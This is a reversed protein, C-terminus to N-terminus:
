LPYAQRDQLGSRCVSLNPHGNNFEIYLECGEIYTPLAKHWVSLKEAAAEINTCSSLGEKSFGQYRLKPSSKTSYKISKSKKLEMRNNYQDPIFPKDVKM